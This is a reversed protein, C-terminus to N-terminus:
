KLRGFSNRKMHRYFEGNYKWRPKFENSMRIEDAIVAPRNPCLCTDHGGRLLWRTM